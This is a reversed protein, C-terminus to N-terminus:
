DDNKLRGRVGWVVMTVLFVVGAFILYLARAGLSELILGGIFAGVSSGLGIGVTSFLGQATARFGEPANQDAFSVGAVWTLPYNVGNLLQVVLALAPTGVLGFLLLRIGTLFMSLVLMSFSDIRKVFRNIFLLVPVEAFTGITLALGMMSEPAGLGKLYPFLYTNTGAFAFGCTFASFLFLLWLPDKM